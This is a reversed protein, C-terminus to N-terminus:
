QAPRLVISVVRAETKSPDPALALQLTEGPVHAGIARSLEDANTVTKGDVALILDGPKKPTSARLGSTAAPSKPAVASVRLGQAEADVAIGLWAPPVAAEAPTKGLFTRIASVSVMGLNKCSAAPQGKATGCLPTAIGAVAGSLDVFASGRKLAVKDNTPIAVQNVLSPDEPAFTALTMQTGEMGTSLHTLTRFTSAESARIGKRRVDDLPTVLALGTIADEHLIKGRSKVGDAYKLVVDASTLADRGKTRLGTLIRGDHDLVIGVAIERGGQSIEVLSQAPTVGPMGPAGALNPPNAASSLAGAPPTPQVKPAPALAPPDVYMGPPAVPANAAPPAAFVTSTIALPVLIFSKVGYFM